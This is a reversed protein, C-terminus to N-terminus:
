PAVQLEFNVAPFPHASYHGVSVPFSAPGMNPDIIVYWGNPDTVTGLTADFGVPVPSWYWDLEGRISVAGAFLGPQHFCGAGAVDATGILPGGDIEIWIWVGGGGGGCLQLNNCNESYEIQALPHDASGYAAVGGATFGLSAAALLGGLLVLRIIRVPVGGKGDKFGPRLPAPPDARCRGPVAGDAPLLVFDLRLRSSRNACGKQAVMQHGSALKMWMRRSARSALVDNSTM